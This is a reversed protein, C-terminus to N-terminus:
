NVQAIFIIQKIQYGLTFLTNYKKYTQLRVFKSAKSSRSLTILKKGGDIENRVESRERSKPPFTRWDTTHLVNEYGLM